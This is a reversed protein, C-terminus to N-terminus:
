KFESANEHCIEKIIKFNNKLFHLSLSSKKMKPYKNVFKVISIKFLITSKSIGFKKIMDMFHENGKFKELIQGQQYALWLINSKKSRTIKEMNKVVHVAEDPIKISNSTKEFDVNVREEIMISDKVKKFIEEKTKNIRRKTEDTEM